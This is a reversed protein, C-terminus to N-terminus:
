KHFYYKNDGCTGERKGRTSDFVRVGNATHLCPIVIIGCDHLSCGIPLFVLYYIHIAMGILNHKYVM